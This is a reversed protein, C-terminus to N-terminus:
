KNPKIQVRMTHTDNNITSTLDIREVVKAATELADALEEASEAREEAPSTRRSYSDSEEYDEEEIYDEELYDKESDDEEADAPSDELSLPKSEADAIARLEKAIGRATAALPAFKISAVCGAFPTDGTAAAVIEANYNSSTGVTFATDSVTVNPVMDPTFWPMAVTYSTANGKVAPVIPLM